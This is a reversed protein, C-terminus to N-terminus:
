SKKKKKTDNSAHLRAAIALAIYRASVFLPYSCSLHASCSGEPTRRRLAKRSVGNWINHVYEFVEFVLIGVKLLAVRAGTKVNLQKEDWDGAM